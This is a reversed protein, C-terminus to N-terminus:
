ISKLLSLDHTRSFIIARAKGYGINSFGIYGMDAWKIKCRKRRAVYEVGNEDIVLYHTLKGSMYDIILAFPIVTSGAIVVYFLFKNDIHIAYIIGFIFFAVLFIFSTYNFVTISKKNFLIKM